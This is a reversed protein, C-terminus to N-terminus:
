YRLWAPRRTRLFAVLTAGRFLIPRRKDIAQLGRLGIWMMPGPREFYCQDCCFCVDVTKRHRRAGILQMAGVFPM